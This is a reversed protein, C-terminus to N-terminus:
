VLYDKIIQSKTDAKFGNQKLFEKIHRLTTNSYTGNVKAIYGHTGTTIVAVRTSYSTLILDGHENTSVLAKGYFSQRSDYQTTLEYTM